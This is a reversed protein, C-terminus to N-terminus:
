GREFSSILEEPTVTATGVRGVVVGAAYNAVTAADRLSAGALHSLTFVAIVTDGAGTVDYVSKAVTPIHTVGGEEFLSMGEEGQTILVADSRLKKRLMEGARLLSREDRIEVGAGESAEKLNPTVLSIGRYLHFNGVKPDVALFAGKNKFNNRLYQMLGKSIVGKKYDSVIIGDWPEANTLFEKIKRLTRDSIRRKDERDFRVVQQNHAIVRTKMTTPRNGAFLGDTEIGANVLLNRLLDGYYDDGCVGCITARGGLSVINAAVNAAGGLSFNEGKIDVVPVPAEPSIREVSGWIYHDLVIDGIVLIRINKFNKILRNLNM